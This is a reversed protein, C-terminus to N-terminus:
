DSDSADPIPTAEARDIALEAAVRFGFPSNGAVLSGGVATLRERMGQMGIGPVVQKAGIGNDTITVRLTPHVVWLSVIVKTAQGHRFSNTLSEQVLRYLVDDLPSGFSPPTNGLNLEVITGTAQQFANILERLRRRGVPEEERLDRLERLARRVEFLAVQAQDRASVLLEILREPDTSSIEIAAQMMMHVNTLTYGVSDHIERAIRKREEDTSRRRVASAYEQFNVNAQSLAEITQDLRAVEERLARLAKQQSGIRSTAGTLFGVYGIFLLVIIWSSGEVPEGWVSPPFQAGVMAMVYVGVVIIRYGVYFQSMIVPVFATALVFEIVPDGGMPVVVVAHSLGAFFILATSSLPSRLPFLSFLLLASTSIGMLVLFQGDFRPPLDANIGGFYLVAAVGHAAIVVALSFLPTQLPRDRITVGM